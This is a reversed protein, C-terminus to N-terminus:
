LLIWNKKSYDNFMLILYCKYDSINKISKFLFDVEPLAKGSSNPYSHHCCKNSDLHQSEDFIRM